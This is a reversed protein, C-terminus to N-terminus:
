GRTGWSSRRRTAASNAHAAMESAAHVEVCCVCDGLPVSGAECDAVGVPKATGGPAVGVVVGAHQVSVGGGVPVPDGAAVGVEVGPAVGVTVGGGVATGVGAPDGAGTAGTM